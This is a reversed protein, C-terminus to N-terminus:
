STEILMSGDCQLKGRVYQGNLHIYCDSVFKFGYEPVLRATLEYPESSNFYYDYKDIPMAQGDSTWECSAIKYRFDFSQSDSYGVDKQLIEGVKVGEAVTPGILGVEYIPEDMDEWWYSVSGGDSLLDTANINSPKVLNGVTIDWNQFDPDDEETVYYTRSAFVKGGQYTVNCREGDMMVVSYPTFQWNDSPILEATVTYNAGDLMKDGIEVPAGDCTRTTEGVEFRADPQGPIAFGMNGEIIDSLEMGPAVSGRTRVNVTNINSTKGGSITDFYWIYDGYLTDGEKWFGFSNNNGSVDYGIGDIVVRVGNWNPEVEPSFRLRVSLVPQQGTFSSTLKATSGDGNPNIATWEAKVLEVGPTLCKFNTELVEGGVPQYRVGTRENIPSTLQIDDVTANDYRLTFPQSYVTGYDNWIRCRMTYGNWNKHLYHLEWEPDTADPYDTWYGGDSNENYTEWQYNLKTESVAYVELPVTGGNCFNVDGVPTQGVLKPAPGQEICFPMDIYTTHSITGNNIEQMTGRAQYRKGPEPVFGQSAWATNVNISNAVHLDSTLWRQGDNVEWTYRLMNEHTDFGDLAGPRYVGELEKYYYKPEITLTPDSAKLSEMERTLNVQGEPFVHCRHVGSAKDSTCGEGLEGFNLAGYYYWEDDSDECHAADYQDQLYAFNKNSTTFYYGGRAISPPGINKIGEYGVHRSQYSTTIRQGAFGGVTGGNLWVHGNDYIYVTNVQHPFTGITNMAESYSPIHAKYWDHCGRGYLAGGNMVFTGEGFVRVGCGVVQKWQKYYIGGGSGNYKAIGQKSRGAEVTGGDMIFTGAVDFIHRVQASGKKHIYGDYNIWGTGRSDYLELFADANVSFMSSEFPDDNNVYITHGNLDLSKVGNVPAWVDYNGHGPTCCNGLLVIKYPIYMDRLYARLTEPDRVYVTEAEKLRWSQAAYHPLGEDEDDDNETEASEPKESAQLLGGGAPDGVEKEVAGVSLGSFLGFVM